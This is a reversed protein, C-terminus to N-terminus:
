LELPAVASVPREVVEEVAEGRALALRDSLLAGLGECRPDGDLMHGAAGDGLGVPVVDEGEVHVSAAAFPSLGVEVPAKERQEACGHRVTTEQDEGLAGAAGDGAGQVQDAAIAQVPAVPARDLMVRAQVELEAIILRDLVGNGMAKAADLGASLARMLERAAVQGLSGVREVPKGIRAELGGDRAVQLGLTGLHRVHGGGEFGVRGILRMSGLAASGTGASTAGIRKVSDRRAGYCALASLLPARM